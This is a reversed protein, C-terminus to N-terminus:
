DNPNVIGIALTYQPDNALWACPKSNGEAYWAALTLLVMSELNGLAGFNADQLHQRLNWGITSLDPVDPQSFSVCTPGPVELESQRLVREAVSALSEVDGALWEGRAIRVGKQKGLVWLVAAEGAPLRSEQQIPSSQCGACLIRSDAPAGHLQDIIADLSGIGQWVDPREPLQMTPWLKTVQEAFVNWAAPTGQWYCRLPQVVPLELRQEHWQLALLAALQAEREAVDKGFVQPVRISLGDDTQEPTPKTHDPSFLTQKQEASRCTAGLLVSEALAVTQRHRTWWGQELQQANVGYCYANHRDLRYCLVRVLFALLWLCLVGLAVIVIIRLEFFDSFVLKSSLLVVASVVAFSTWWRSYVPAQALPYPAFEPAKNM